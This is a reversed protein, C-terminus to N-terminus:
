RALRFSRTTTVAARGPAAFTAKGTLKIKKAHRLLKKGTSTLKLHMSRTGAGAFVLKGTAVLVPKRRSSLHAGPPVLYWNITATGAELAKFPFTSGGSKLLKGIKTETSSTIDSRLAALIQNTTPGTNGPPPPPSVLIIPPTVSVSQQAQPAAQYESSGAQNADIVCTGPDTFSVTSGTLTCTGTSSPDVSFVVPNGSSGGSAQPVYSGHVTAPSPPTSTFTITQPAPAINVLQVGSATGPDFGTTLTSSGIAENIQAFRAFTVATGSVTGTVQGPSSTSNGALSLKLNSVPSKFNSLDLVSGGSNADEGVFEVPNSPTSALTADPQFTTPVASSGDVTDIDAFCDTLSAGTVSGFGSPCSGGSMAVTLSAFGSMTSLDLRNGIGQGTFSMGGSNGALFSTGGASSGKFASIESFTDTGSPTSATGASANISVGSSAPTFDLANGTGSATFSFGAANGAIFSNNGSSSGVFNTIGGISDTGGAISVSGAVTNITVPSTLVSLDLKNGTGQGNFSLGGASGPYFTSGGGSSGDFTAIDSFTDTVSGATATDNATPGVQTGSVNVTPATLSSLDLTNNNGNGTFTANGSGTTFTNDGASSGVFKSIGSFDDTGGSLSAVGTGADISVPSTLASFDLTNGASQGNFTFGSASGAEFTTNGASAGDFDTIDSFSDTVSGAKVSDNAVGDAPGGTVNVTAASLDSLDLTNDNGEGSFTADSPGATFTNGGNDSGTFNSIGSFTDTGGLATATGTSANISVGSSAASYDLENGTGSAAFSFGNPTGAVFATNGTSPGVFSTIGSILDSAAGITVKGSTTDVTVPSSSSMASLNLENGTGQGTFSQGGASSPYFTSGGTSSGKFATIGTFSDTVSGSTATNNATAGVQIGSVNVTPATLASLDLTNPNGSGEGTFTANGSAPAAFTNGGTDSGIFHQEGTFDLTTVNGGTFGTVTGPSAAADISLPGAAGSLDLTNSSAKGAVVVTTVGTGLTVDPNCSESMALTGSGLAMTSDASDAPSSNGDAELTGPFSATFQPACDGASGSSLAGSSDDLIVYQTSTSSVTVDPYTATSYTTGACESTGGVSIAYNGGSVSIELPQTSSTSGDTVAITLDNTSTSCTVTPLPTASAPAGALLAAGLVVLLTAFARKM